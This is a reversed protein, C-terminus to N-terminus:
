KKSVMLFIKKFTRKIATKYLLKLPANFITIKAYDNMKKYMDIVFEDNGYKKYFDWKEHNLKQEDESVWSGAYHHICYTNDTITIIGTHFSKATFYDKSYIKTIDFKNNNLLIEKMIKPLVYSNDTITKKYDKDKFYELCDKIYRASKIAGFCGAEINKNDDEFALMYEANLLDDFSKIIEIDMDLYIGGYNYVAYLRIYDAAFAYKKAQFADKVWLSTNIDFRDFNWLIFEYGHLNEKWSKICKQLNEPIPDDSLWCYHIIKPIL